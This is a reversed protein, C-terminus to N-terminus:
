LKDHFACRIDADISILNKNIYNTEHYMNKPNFFYSNNRNLKWVTLFLLFYQSKEKPSFKEQSSGPTANAKETRFGVAKVSTITKENYSM